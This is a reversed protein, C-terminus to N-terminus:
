VPTGRNWGPREILRDDRERERCSQAFESAAIQDSAFANYEDADLEYYEEYDFVGNSVPISLYKRGSGVEVGLSYQHHPSFHSDVYM